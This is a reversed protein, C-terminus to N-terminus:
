ILEPCSLQGIGLFVNDGIKIRGFVNIGPVEERFLSAGGDHTEFIVGGTITVNDGIQILYPESGFAIDKGTIRASKGIKINFYKRYIDPITYATSFKVLYKIYRSKVLIKLKM